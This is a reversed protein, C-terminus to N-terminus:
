LSLSELPGVHHAKTDAAAVLLLRLILLLLTLLFVAELVRELCNTWTFWRCPMRWCPRSTM